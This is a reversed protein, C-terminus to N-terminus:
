RDKVLSLLVNIYIEDNAYKCDFACINNTINYITKGFITMVDISISFNIGFFWCIKKYMM